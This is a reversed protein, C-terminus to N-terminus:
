VAGVDLITNVNGSSYTSTSIGTNCWNERQKQDVMAQHAYQVIKCYHTNTLILSVYYVSLTTANVDSNTGTHTWESV